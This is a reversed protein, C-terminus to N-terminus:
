AGPQSFSDGFTTQLLIEAEERYERPVLVIREDPGKPRPKRAAVTVAGFNSSIIMSPINNQDLSSKAMDYTLHSTLRAVEVWSDDPSVAGGSLTAPMENLSVNCDPCILSADAFEYGCLPCWAM